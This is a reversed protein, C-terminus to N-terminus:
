KLQSIHFGDTPSIKFLFISKSITPPERVHFIFTANECESRLQKLKKLRFKMGPHMGYFTIADAKLADNRDVSIQCNSKSCHTFDPDTFIYKGYAKNWHLILIM